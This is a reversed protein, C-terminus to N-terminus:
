SSDHWGVCGAGRGGRHSTIKSWSWSWIAGERTFLARTDAVEWCECVKGDQMRFIDVMDFNLKNGTATRGIWEGGTHTGTTTSYTVVTDGDAVMKKLAYGFDPVAAFITTFFDLFGAEGQPCDANPQIYDEPMYEDMRSMDHRLFVDDYFRSPVDKNTTADAM